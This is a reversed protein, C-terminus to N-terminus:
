NEIENIMASSRFTAPKNGTTHQTREILGIMMEM